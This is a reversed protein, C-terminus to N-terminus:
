NISNIIYHAYMVMGGGLVGMILGDERLGLNLIQNAPIIVIGMLIPLSLHIDKFLSFESKTVTAIIVRSANLCYFSGFSFIVLSPAEWAFDTFKFALFIYLYIILMPLLGEIAHLSTHKTTSLVTITNLIIGLIIPFCGIFIGVHCVKIAAFKDVMQLIKSLTERQQILKSETVLRQIRSEVHDQTISPM